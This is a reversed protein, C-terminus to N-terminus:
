EKKDGAKDIIVALLIVGGKVVQQWFPSVNLLVLGNNLVGIIVAGIVTGWVTGKGGNLSTGGIVVAAIADLEYSVGANPQASDLRSTVIVGGLAALAGGISYVILKVKNIRIGSLRAATENGGIAYIYRGLKTKQTIFVALLVMAAAIWVPVPIDLLADTGIYAFEEGLNSIPHGGTYLMTFGRAITLMALTAVFPPVKFSTIAFGNFLGILAGVIVAALTAGLITFGVYLDASPFQLGNKSLGATIAGCLALVSGVSLDIGGTLVILTMGTAICANVAVQRLVNVGNAATFFKDTLLSLAICLVLLAIVSQFRKLNQTYTGTIATM